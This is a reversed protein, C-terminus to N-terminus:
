EGGLVKQLQQPSLELRFPVSEVGPKPRRSTKSVFDCFEELNNYEHLTEVVAQLHMLYEMENAHRCKSSGFAVPLVTCYVTQQTYGRQFDIDLPVGWKAILLDRLAYGDFGIDNVNNGNDAKAVASQFAQLSVSSDDDNGINDISSNNETVGIKKKAQQFSALSSTDNDNNTDKTAAAKRKAKLIKREGPGYTSFEIVEEWLDVLWNNRRTETRLLLLARPSLTRRTRRTTAASHHHTLLFGESYTWTGLVILLAGYVVVVAAVTFTSAIRQM